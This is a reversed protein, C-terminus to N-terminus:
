LAIRVHQSETFGQIQVDLEVVLADQDQELILNDVAAIRPDGVLTERLRLEATELNLDTFGLSVIRPMGLQKYLQDQGQETLLRLTVLQSLNDIGSVTKADVSGLDTDIAIDYQARSSGYVDGVAEMALDTGLFQAAASEELRAGLVPLVAQELTSTQNSPILIQSGVGLADGFPSEDAGTATGSLESGLSTSSVLPASAQKDIFPAKLGNLVAIYQWLRADGLYKAALTVLSDGQGIVVSRASKFKHMSGGALSEGDISLADGATLQTGLNLVETFTTPSGFAEAEEKRENSINRRYEQQERLKRIETETPTEFQQPYRGLLELGDQVVRFKNLTNEPFVKPVDSFGLYTHISDTAVDFRGLAATISSFPTQIFESTGNLFDETKTMILTVSDILVAINNVFSKIQGRLANLDNIAGNVLDVGRKISRIKDKIEDFLSQDESFDYDQPKYADVALLEINYNYTVPNSADRDLGFNKPVVWWAESDQQNHFYLRTEKATAPNRKLDAYTRFVSDQLYQFHRQGSIRDLVKDPLVRSFSKGKTKLTPVGAVKLFRPKFGTNGQLRIMRQVIGNEEVYLGGGQTPTAEVTFPEDMSYSTPSLVLPFLYKTPGGAEIASAPVHLEFYYLLYKTFNSDKNRTQRASERIHELTSVM